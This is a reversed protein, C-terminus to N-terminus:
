YVPGCAANFAGKVDLSIFVLYKKNQLHKEAFSKATLAADVTSKQPIFGYQNNNMLSNSYLHHQIRDILLKELLKGSINLLSIPRYKSVDSSEEKGPKIIPIISSRKWQKPFCGKKLCQNYIETFFKPFCTFTKLLIESTLGDEGPAKHPDFKHLATFKEEQTFEIGDTTNMPNMVLQRIQRHHESDSCPDDEATFHQLM